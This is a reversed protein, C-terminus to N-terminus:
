IGKLFLRSEFICLGAVVIFYSALIWAYVHTPMQILMFHFDLLFPVVLFLVVASMTGTIHLAKLERAPLTKRGDIIHQTLRRCVLIWVALVILATGLGYFKPYYYHSFTLISAGLIVNLLLLAATKHHSVAEKALSEGRTSSKDLETNLWITMVWYGLCNILTLPLLYVWPAGSVAIFLVTVLELALFTRSLHRRANMAVPDDTM